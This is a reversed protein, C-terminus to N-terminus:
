TWGRARYYITKATEDFLLWFVEWRSRLVNMRKNADPFPLATLQVGAKQFARLARLSHYDSTLLIKRGPDGQLMRAVFTANERTSNAASEVVIAERPVGQAAIFDRMSGAVDKGTVIIRHYHGGRWVLVAYFSRWYSNIGLVGPATLDNGLVILTDGDDPGWPSSLAAIWWRLIPTATIAIHLMGLLAAFRYLWRGGAQLLSMASM